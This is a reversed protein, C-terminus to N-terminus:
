KSLSAPYIFKTTKINPLKKLKTKYLRNKDRYNLPIETYKSTVINIDTKRWIFESIRKKFIYESGQYVCKVLSRTHIVM